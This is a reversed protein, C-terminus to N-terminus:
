KVFVKRVTTGDATTVQLLYVSPALGSLETATTEALKNGVMDFLTVQAEAAHIRICGKGVEVLGSQANHICNPDVLAEFDALDRPAVMSGDASVSIGTVNAYSMMPQGVFNADDFAYITLTSGEDDKVANPKSTLDTFTDNEQMDVFADDVLWGVHVNALRVLRNEYKAADTKLEAATVISPAADQGSALM